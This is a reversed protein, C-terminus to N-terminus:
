DADAGGEDESMKARVWAVLPATDTTHADLMAQTNAATRAAAAAATYAAKAAAASEINGERVQVEIADLRDAHEHQTDEIRALAEGATHPSPPEVERRTKRAQYIVAWTAGGVAILAVLIQVGSTLISVREM